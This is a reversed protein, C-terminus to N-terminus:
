DGRTRSVTRKRNLVLVMGGVIFSVPLLINKSTIGTPPLPKQSGPKSNSENENDPVEPRKDKSGGDIEPKDPKSGEPTGGIDPTEDPTIGDPTEDIGPKNEPDIPKPKEDVDPKQDPEIPKPTEDIEPEDVTKTYKLKFTINADSMVMTLADYATGNITWESKFGDKTPLDLLKFSTNYYVDLEHLVNGLDDLFTVSYLNPQYFAYVELDDTIEKFNFDVIDGLGNAKTYWGVFSHGKVLPAQPIDHNTVMTNYEQNLSRLLQNDVYFNVSYVNISYVAYLDTDQEVVTSFFVFPPGSGDPQSSWGIM